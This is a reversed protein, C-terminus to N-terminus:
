VEMAKIGEGAAMSAQRSDNTILCTCHTCIAFAVHLIDLTRAGVKEAWTRALREALELWEAWDLAQHRVLSRDLMTKLRGLAADRAREIEVHLRIPQGSKEIYAKARIATAAELLILDSIVLVPRKMARYASVVKESRAERWALCVLASTDIAVKM